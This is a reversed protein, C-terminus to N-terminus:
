TGTRAVAQLDRVELPQPDSVRGVLGLSGGGCNSDHTGDLDRDWTCSYTVEWSSAVRATYTDGGDPASTYVHGCHPRGRQQDYPVDVHYATGNRECVVPAAGDGMDARIDVFEATVRVCAYDAPPICVRRTIPQTQAEDLWIWTEIGVVQFDDVTPSFSPEPIPLTLAQQAIRRTAAADPPDGLQLIWRLRLGAGDDTPCYIIVWPREYVESDPALEEGSPGRATFLYGDLHARVFDWDGVEYTCPDVGSGPGGGRDGAEIGGFCVGDTGCAAESEPPPSPDVNGSSGGGLVDVDQALVTGASAGWVLACLVAVTLVRM